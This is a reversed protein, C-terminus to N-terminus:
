VQTVVTSGKKSSDYILKTGDDWPLGPLHRQDIPPHFLLGRLLGQLLAGAPEEQHPRKDLVIISPLGELLLTLAAQM